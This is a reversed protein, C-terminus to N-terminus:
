DNNEQKVFAYKGDSQSAIYWEFYANLKEAETICIAFRRDIESRDNPKLDKLGVVVNIIMGRMDDVTPVKNSEEMEKKFEEMEKAFEYESKFVVKRGCHSCNNFRQEKYSYELENTTTTLIITEKKCFPCTTTYNEKM